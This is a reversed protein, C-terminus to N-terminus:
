LLTEVRKFDFVKRVNHGLVMNFRKGSMDASVHLICKEHLFYTVSCVASASTCISHVCM